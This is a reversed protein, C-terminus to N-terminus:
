AIPAWFKISRKFVQGFNDWDALALVLGKVACNVYVLLSGISHALNFLELTESSMTDYVLNVLNFILMPIFLTAAVQFVRVLSM